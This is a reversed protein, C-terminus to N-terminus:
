LSSVLRGRSTSSSTAAKSSAPMRPSIQPRSKRDQWRKSNPAPTGTAVTAVPGLAGKSVLINIGDHMLILEVVHYGHFIALNAIENEMNM